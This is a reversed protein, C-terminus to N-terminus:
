PVRGRARISHDAPLVIMVEDDPRDVAVTALAIAAATNRGAPEVLSGSTPSSPM